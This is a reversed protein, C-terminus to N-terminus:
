KLQLTDSYAPLGTNSFSDFGNSSSCNGIRLNTYNVGVSLLSRSLSRLSALWLCRRRLPRGRRRPTAALSLLLLMLRM